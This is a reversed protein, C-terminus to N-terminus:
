VAKVNIILNEKSVIIVERGANIPKDDISKAKYIENNYIIRGMGDVSLTKGIDKTVIATKGICNELNEKKVINYQEIKYIRSVFIYFILTFVIFIFPQYYLDRPVKYLYVACFLSGGALSLKIKSPKKLDFLIFIIGIIAWAIHM